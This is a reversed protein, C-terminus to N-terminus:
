LTLCMFLFVILFHTLKKRVLSLIRDNSKSLYANEMIFWIYISENLPYENRAMIVESLM